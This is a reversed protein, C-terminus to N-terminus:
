KKGELIEFIATAVYDPKISKLCPSWMNNSWHCPSTGHINCNMCGDVVDWAYVNLGSVRLSSTVPTYIGMTPIGLSDGIYVFVSDPAVLMKCRKILAVNLSFSGKVKDSYPKLIYKHLEKNYTGNALYNEIVDQKDLLLVKFGKEGLYSILANQYIYPYTRLIASAKVQLGIVPSDWEKSIEEAQEEYKAPIKLPVSHDNGIDVFFKDQAILEFANVQEAKKNDEVIGEFTFFYDCRQYHTYPLLISSVEDVLYPYLFDKIISSFRPASAFEIYVGKFNKKIEMLSRAIFLIDGYGGTRSVLLRKGTYDTAQKLEKENVFDSLGMHPIGEFQSALHEPIIYQFGEKATIIENDVTIPVKPVKVTMLKM